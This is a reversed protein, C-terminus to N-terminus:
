ASTTVSYKEKLANLYSALDAHARGYNDPLAGEFGTLGQSWGSLTQIGASRPYTAVFNLGVMKQRRGRLGVEAVGFREIDAWRYSRERWMSRVTLGESTLRLYSSNPVFQIVSVIAVLGFFVVSLYAWIRDDAASPDRLMLVGVAVFALSALLILAWKGKRPRLLEDNM